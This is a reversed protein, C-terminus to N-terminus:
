NQMYTTNSIKTYNGKEDGLFIDASMDYELFM